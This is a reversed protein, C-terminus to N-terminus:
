FSHDRYLFTSEYASVRRKAAAYLSASHDKYYFDTGFRLAQNEEQTQMRHDLSKLWVYTRQIEQKRWKEELLKKEQLKKRRKEISKKEEREKKCLKEQTKRTPFSHSIEKFDSEQAGFKLFAYSHYGDETCSNYSKRIKDLVWAEYTPNQKMSHFCEESITIWVFDEHSSYDASIEEIKQYVSLKYNTMDDQKQPTFYKTQAAQTSATKVSLIDYM